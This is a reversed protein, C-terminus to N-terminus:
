KSARRGRTQCLLQVLGLYRPDALEYFVRTASRRAVLLRRRRLVGLHVSVLSQGAGTRQAIGSVSLEGQGLLCLIKLRMPHAMAKLAGSACEYHEDGSCLPNHTSNGSTM